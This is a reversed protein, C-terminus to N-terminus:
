LQAALKERKIKDDDTEAIPQAPASPAPPATAWPALTPAKRSSSAAGTAASQNPVTSIYSRLM